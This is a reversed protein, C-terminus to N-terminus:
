IRYFVKEGLPIGSAGKIFANICACSFAALIILIIGKMRKDVIKQGRM